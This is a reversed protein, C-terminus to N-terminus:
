GGAAPRLRTPPRYLRPPTKAPTQSDDCSNWCVLPQVEGKVPGTYRLVDIGRSYDAIYIYGNRWYAGSANNGVQGTGAPIRIYGAQKIDTPDSVDLIRTGNSYFAIAVMDGLVTFWHASCSGGHNVGDLGRPTYDDLKEIFYRNQPLAPDGGARWRLTPDWAKGTYSGALNAIVFRGAGGGSTSTCSAVNEQTVYQLDTTDSAGAGRGDHGDDALRGVRGSHPPVLQARPQDHRVPRRDRAVPRQRGRVPGPQVRDRLAAPGDDPRDAPRAHLLRARRRLGLDVRDRAPRRRRQAHLRDHQQQAQRRGPGRVHVPPQHRTRRHRVGPRGDVGPAPAAPPVTVVNGAVTGRIDQPQGNVRSGNNAPGVSWIYRCDNICTATHGAPVWHYTKVRTRRWPDSVDIIYLGTRGGPHNNNGFSRPDRALFALKRRSDVTPSEGEYFRTNAPDAAGHADPGQRLHNATVASM